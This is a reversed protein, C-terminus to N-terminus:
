KIREITLEIIRRVFDAQAMYEDMLNAGESELEAMIENNVDRFIEALQLQQEEHTFGTMHAVLHGAFEAACSAEYEIVVNTFGNAGFRLHGGTVGKMQMGDMELVCQMGNESISQNPFMPLKFNFLHENIQDTM